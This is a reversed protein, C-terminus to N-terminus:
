FDLIGWVREYYQHDTPLLEMIPVLDGIEVEVKVLFM